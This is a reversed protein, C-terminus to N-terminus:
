FSRGFKIAIHYIDAGLMDMSGAIWWSSGRKGDIRRLRTGFDIGSYLGKQALDIGADLGIYPVIRKKGFSFRGHAYLPFSLGDQRMSAIAYHNYGIGGGVFINKNFNYGGIADLGIFPALGMSMEVIGAPGAQSDGGFTIMQGGQDDMKGKGALYFPLGILTFGAGVAGDILAFVPYLPTVPADEDQVFTLGGIAFTALGKMAFAAGTLMMTKGFDTMGQGKGTFESRLPESETQRDQPAYQASVNLACIFLFLVATATRLISRM